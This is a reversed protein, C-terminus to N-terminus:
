YPLRDKSIRFKCHNLDKGKTLLGSWHFFPISKTNKIANVSKQVISKGSALHLTECVVNIVKTLTLVVIIISAINKLMNKVM